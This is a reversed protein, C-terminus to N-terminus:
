KRQHRLELVWEYIRRQVTDIRELEKALGNLHSRHGDVTVNLQQYRDDMRGIKENVGNANWALIGFLSGVLFQVAMRSLASRDSDPM